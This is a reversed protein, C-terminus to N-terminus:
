NFRTDMHDFFKRKNNKKAHRVSSDQFEWEDPKTGETACKAICCVFQPRVPDGGNPDIATRLSITDAMEAYNFSPHSSLKTELLEKSTLLLDSPSVIGEGALKECLGEMYFPAGAPLTQEILSSM